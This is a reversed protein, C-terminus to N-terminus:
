KRKRRYPAYIQVQKAKANKIDQETNGTLPLQSKPPIKVRTGQRIRDPHGLGPNAEYIYVWFDKQGYNRGALTTLFTNSTITGYTPKERVPEPRAPAPREEAAAKAEATKEPQATAKEAPAPKVAPTSLTDKKDATKEEVKEEPYSVADNARSISIRLSGHFYYGAGFGLIIGLAFAIIFWFAKMGSSHQYGAPCVITQPAAQVPQAANYAPEKDMNIGGNGDDTSEEPKPEPIVVPEPEPKPEPVAVPEPVVVPEAAPEPEPEPAAVEPQPEPKVEPEPEAPMAPEPEKPTEGLAAVEDASELVFPSFAAFPANVKETMAPDPVFEVPASANGTARFIGLGKLHIEEGSVIGARVVNFYEQMFAAADEASTGTRRALMEALRSAAITNNM